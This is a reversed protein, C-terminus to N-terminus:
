KRTIEEILEMVDSENPFKKLKAMKRAKKICIDNLVDENISKGSFNKSIEEKLKTKLMKFFFLVRIGKRGKEKILDDILKIKSNEKSM